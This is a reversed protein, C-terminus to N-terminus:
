DWIKLDFSIALGLLYLSKHYHKVHNWGFWRKINKSTGGTLSNRFIFWDFNQELDSRM